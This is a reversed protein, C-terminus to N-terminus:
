AWRTLLRLLVRTRGTYPPYLLRISAFRSQIFVPKEKSFQRFGFEGHYHGYGSAGVGGFPLSEQAAHLMTDNIVVGGSLTRHLIKDRRQRNRGFWYLALPRPRENIWALAQDLSTYPLLPLLPGFIEEQMVRMNENVDLLLMPLMKRQGLSEIEQGPNLQLLRAGQTRADDLLSQLRQWHRENIISTYDPNSQITPYFQTVAQQVRDVFEQMRAEPVFIYDPATCTQGANLLKGWMIREVALKIDASDDIIVPSKGGLELTLPTLNGAAAQAIQRGVVTSGTFVLHDFPLASFARGTEGGGNIVVLEDASFYECVAARLAEAFLPTLESPKLLARNGAALVGILPSLLLQIPYNWAGIIGVVGLAQRIIMGRGPLFVFATSTRVPKMWRRLHRRAHRIGSRVTVIESLVTMTPSRSGFDRAILEAFQEGHRVLLRELRQLRDQRVSFSPNIDGAFAARQATLAALLHQEVPLSGLDSCSM